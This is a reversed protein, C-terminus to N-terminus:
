PMPNTMVELTKVPLNLPTWEASVIHLIGGPILSYINPVLYPDGFADNESIIIPFTIQNAYPRLSVPTKTYVNNEEIFFRTTRGLLPIASMPNTLNYTLRVLIVQRKPRPIRLYPHKDTNKEQQKAFKISREREAVATQPGSNETYDLQRKIADDTQKVIYQAYQDTDVSLDPQVKLGENKQQERQTAQYDRVFSDVDPVNDFSPRPLMIKESQISNDTTVDLHQWGQIDTNANSWQQPKRKWLVHIPSQSVVEYNQELLSYFDWHENQLWEEYIFYSRNLTVVFQPQINEFDTVYQARRKQGLAHIIYDSGSPNFTKMESEFLSSYLSWLKTNDHNFDEAVIMNNPAGDYQSDLKFEKNQLSVLLYNDGWKQVQKVIQRGSRKFYVIQGPRIFSAHSGPDVILQASTKSIGHEFSDKTVDPISVNNDAQIVPMIVSDTNDWDRSLNNTDLGFVRNKLQRVTTVIDYQNQNAILTNFSWVFAVVVFAYAVIHVVLKPTIAIRQKLKALQFDFSIPKKWLDWLLIFAAPGILLLMRELAYTESPDFYGIVSIMSFAGAMLGAMFAQVRVRDKFRRHILWTMWAIVIAGLFIRQIHPYRQFEAVINGLHLFTNPPVGFYWSQDSPVDVFNYILPRVPNGRTVITLIGLLTIGLSAIVRGASTVRRIFPLRQKIPYSLYAVLFAVIIAIGFETGCLLSIALMTGILAEYRTLTRLWLFKVRGFLPRQLRDYNLMVALVVIPMSARIGLLSNGALTFFSLFSLGYASVAAAMPLAFKWQRRFAYFFCFAVLAFILPSLVWRTLESGFLGQGLLIFFPLHILPVGIGHFFNFDRGIVQGAALRRLPDYLQFAGDAAFGNFALANFLATWLSSLVYVVLILLASLWFLRLASQRELFLIVKQLARLLFQQVKRFNTM